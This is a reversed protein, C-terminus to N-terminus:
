DRMTVPRGAQPTRFAWSIVSKPCTTVCEGCLICGTDDMDQHEAMRQVELGMPCVPTCKACHICKESDAQLRLAPLRLANGAGRGLVMFPAMWCITHCSARKGVILSLSVFAVIVILYALLENLSHISFGAVTNYGVEVRRAGGAQIFLYVILGLWPAWVLYKIWHVRGHRLRRTRARSAFDGIAGGPCIWACFLRGVVFSTAFLLGFLLLSGTIVGEAAGMASVVPSFYYFTAPFLVL